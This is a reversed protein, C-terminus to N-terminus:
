AERIELGQGQIENAVYLPSQQGNGRGHRRWSEYWWSLEFEDKIASGGSGYNPDNEEEM